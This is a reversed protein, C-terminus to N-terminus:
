AEEVPDWPDLSRQPGEGCLGFTDFGRWYADRCFARVQNKGLIEFTEEVGDKNRYVNWVQALSNTM